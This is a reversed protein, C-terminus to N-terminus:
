KKKNLHYVCLFLVLFLLPLGVVLPIVDVSSGYVEVNMVFNFLSLINSCLLCFWILKYTHEKAERIEHLGILGDDPSPTLVMLNVLNLGLTKRMEIIQRIPLRIGTTRRM